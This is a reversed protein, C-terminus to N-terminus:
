RDPSTVPEYFEEYDVENGLEMDMIADDGTADENAALLSTLFLYLFM